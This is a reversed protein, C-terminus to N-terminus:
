EVLKKESAVLAAPHDMILLDATMTAVDKADPEPAVILFILITLLAAPKLM